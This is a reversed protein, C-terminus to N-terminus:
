HASDRHMHHIVSHMFLHITISCLPGAAKEGKHTEEQFTKAGLGSQQHPRPFSFAVCIINNHCM